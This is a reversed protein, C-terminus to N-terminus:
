KRKSVNLHLLFNEKSLNCLLVVGSIPKVTQVKNWRNRKMVDSWMVDFEIAIGTERGGWMTTWIGNKVDLKMCKNGKYEDMYEMLITNEDDDTATSFFCMSMWESVIRIISKIFSEVQIPVSITFVMQYGYEDNHIYSDWNSPQTQLVWITIDHARIHTLLVIFAIM